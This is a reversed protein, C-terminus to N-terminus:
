FSVLPFANAAGDGEHSMAVLTRLHHSFLSSPHIATLYVHTASALAAIHLARDM